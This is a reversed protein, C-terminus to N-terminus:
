FLSEFNVSIETALQDNLGELEQRKKELRVCESQKLQTRMLEEKMAHVRNEILRVEERRARFERSCSDIESQISRISSQLSEQEAYLQELSCKTGSLSLKQELFSTESSITSIERFLRVVEEAKRKLVSAKREELNCESLKSELDDKDCELVLLEHHLDSLEEEARSVMTQLRNIEAEVPKLSTLKQIKARLEDVDVELKADAIYQPALSDILAALKTVLRQEESKHAFSRECLPCAHNGNLAELQSRYFEIAHRNDQCKATALVLREEMESLCYTLSDDGCLMVIEQTKQLVDMRSQESTRTLSDMKWQVNMIDQNVRALKDRTENSANTRQRLMVDAEKDVDSISADRGSFEDKIENWIKNMFEDKREKETKKLDHRARLESQQGHRTIQLIIDKLANEVEKRQEDLVCLRKDYEALILLEKANDLVLEEESLRQDFEAILDMTNTPDTLEDFIRAIQSRNDDVMRRRMKRSEELTGIRTSLKQITETCNREEIKAQEVQSIYERQKSDFISTAQILITEFTSNDDPSSIPYAIGFKSAIPTLAKSRENYKQKLVELESLLVGRTTSIKALQKSAENAKNMSSDREGELAKIDAESGRAIKAHNQLIAQLEEDTETMERINALMDQRSQETMVLEHQMREHESVLSNLAALDDNHRALVANVSEIQLDLSQIQGEAEKIRDQTSERNHRLKNAKDLDSRLFDLKQQELRLESALDKRVNKISELAKTYRTAAFIDDFKKKLVSPESLPWFSEEQHCFIVNELVSRSVGLHTPIEADLEACRTSISVQEGTVQDVTMLVGELTKQELKNRKQTSQLSRTVVMSASKVNRFKLKIQAKVETERSLKPDNVFAGGKSNPPLDGTTAYKLCEIITTKGAGNNGVIITLPSYFEIVNQTHPSFSRIGRISLKEISSMSHVQVFLPKGNETTAQFTEICSICSEDHGDILFLLDVLFITGNRCSVYLFHQHGNCVTHDVPMWKYKKQLIASCLPVCGLFQPLDYLGDVSLLLVILDTSAYM